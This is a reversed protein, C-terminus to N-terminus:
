RIGKEKLVDRILRTISKPSAELYYAVAGHHTKNQKWEAITEELCIAAHYRSSQKFTQGTKFWIHRIRERDVRAAAAVVLTKRPTWLKGDM